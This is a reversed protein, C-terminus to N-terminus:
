QGFIDYHAQSNFHTGTPKVLMPLWTHSIMTGVFGIALEGDLSLNAM